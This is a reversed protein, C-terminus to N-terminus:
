RQKRAIVEIYSACRKRAADSLHSELKRIISIMMEAEAQQAAGNPLFSGLIWELTQSLSGVEELREVDFNRFIHSVSAKTMNFYHTHSDHEPQFSAVDALVTGRQNLIRELEAVFLEPNPVHNLSSQALILQFAGDRIPLCNPLAVIDAEEGAHFDLCIHRPDAHGRRSSGVDLMLDDPNAASVMVEWLEPYIHGRNDVHRRFPQDIAAFFHTEHLSVMHCETAHSSDSSRGTCRVRLRHSGVGLYIPLCFESSGFPKFLNIESPTMENITLEVVGSWDNQLFTISVAIADTEIVLEAGAEASSLLNGNVYWGAGSDSGFQEFALATRLLAGDLKEPNAAMIHPVDGFLYRGNCVHGVTGCDNCVLRAAVTFQGCNTEDAHELGSRCKPCALVQKVYGQRAVVDLTEM